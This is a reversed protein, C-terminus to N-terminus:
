NILLWLTSQYSPLQRSKECRYAYIYPSQVLRKGDTICQAHAAGSVPDFYVTSPEWTAASATTGTALLATGAAFAVLTARVSKKMPTPEGETISRSFTSVDYAVFPLFM